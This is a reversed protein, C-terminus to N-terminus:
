SQSCISIDLCKKQLWKVKLTAASMEYVKCHLRIFETNLKMNNLVLHAWFYLICNLFM